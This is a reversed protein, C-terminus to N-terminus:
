PCVITRLMNVRHSETLLTTDLGYVLPERVGIGQGGVGLISESVEITILKIRGYHM